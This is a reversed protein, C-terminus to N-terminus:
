ANTHTFFICFAYLLGSLGEDTSDHSLGKEM